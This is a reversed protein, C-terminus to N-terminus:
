DYLLKRWGAQQHIGVGYRYNGEQPAPLSAPINHSLPTPCPAAADRTFIDAKSAGELFHGGKAPM